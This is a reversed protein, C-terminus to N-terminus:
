CVIINLLKRIYSGQAKMVKELQLAINPVALKLSSPDSLM